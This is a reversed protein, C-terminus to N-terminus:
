FTSVLLEKMTQNHNIVHNHKSRTIIYKFANITVMTPNTTTSSTYIFTATMKEM